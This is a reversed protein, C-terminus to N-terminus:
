LHAYIRAAISLAPHIKDLFSLFTARSVRTPPPLLCVPLVSSAGSVVRCAKENEDGGATCSARIQKFENKSSPIFSALISKLLAGFAQLDSYVLLKATIYQHILAHRDIPELRFPCSTEPKECLANNPTQVGVARATPVPLRTAGCHAAKIPRATSTWYAMDSTAFRADGPGLM